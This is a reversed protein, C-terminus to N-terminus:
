LKDSVLLTLLWSKVIEKAHFNALRRQVGTILGICGQMDNFGSVLLM